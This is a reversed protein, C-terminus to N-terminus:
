RGRLHLLSLLKQRHYQRTQVWHFVNARHLVRCPWTVNHWVPFPPHCFHRSSPLLSRCAIYPFTFFASMEFNQVEHFALFGALFKIPARMPASSACTEKSVILFNRAPFAFQCESLGEGEVHHVEFWLRKKQVRKKSIRPNKFIEFSQFASKWNEIGGAQKLLWITILKVPKWEVERVLHFAGVPSFIYFFALQIWTM